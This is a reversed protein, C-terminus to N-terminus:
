REYITKERKTLFTWYFSECADVEQDLSFKEIVRQRGAEGMEERTVSNEYLTSIAKSLADGDAPPVLIGTKGQLVIEPPGHVFTSIVPKGLTMAELLVMGFGEDISALVFIDMAAIYPYVNEQFGLFHVKERVGFRTAQEELQKQMGHDDAGIIICHFPKGQAVKGFADLLYHYGKKPSINGVSGIVFGNQPIGLQTHVPISKSAKQIEEFDCGSYLVSVRDPEIGANIAAQRVAESVALVHDAHHVWLKKFKKPEMESRVQVLCPIGAHRCVFGVIATDDADNLHVLDFRNNKFFKLLRFIVFPLKPISKGKRFPPLPFHITKVGIEEFKEVHDNRLSLLVTPEYANRNLRELIRLLDVLAGGYTKGSSRHVFLIKKPDSM